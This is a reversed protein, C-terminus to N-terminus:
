EGFRAWLRPYRRKMEESDDFDWEEGAPENPGSDYRTRDGGKEEILEIAVYGFSENSIPGEIGVISDPDAIAAEFVRRGQAILGYRFDTFGDDSCGGKILYAAGWLDWRYAEDFVRDFHEQFSVLETIPLKALQARLGSELDSDRAGALDIQRWFDDRNM